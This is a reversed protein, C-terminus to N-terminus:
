DLKIFGIDKAHQRFCQRCINVGYKRILGHGNSCVRCSRSCQGFEWLHSWFLQQHGMKCPFALLQHDLHETFQFTSRGNDTDEVDQKRQTQSAVGSM